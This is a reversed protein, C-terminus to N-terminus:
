RNELATMLVLQAAAVPMSALWARSTAALTTPLDSTSATRYNGVLLSAAVWSGCLTLVFSAFEIFRLPNFSLPALWGPFTPSLVIASLQKWTAFATLGVCDGILLRPRRVALCRCARPPAATLHQRPPRSKNQVTPM